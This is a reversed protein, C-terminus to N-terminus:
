NEKKANTRLQFDSETRHGTYPNMSLRYANQFAVMYEEYAILPEIKEPTATIYIRGADPFMRFISDLIPKTNANFTADSVFFHAEDM